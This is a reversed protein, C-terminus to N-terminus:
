LEEPNQLYDTLRHLFRAGVAGDSARHDASLTATVQPRVEVLGAVACPRETVAGFGVIAVQPVPIVGFVADAGLDGLNTVTITAQTTDRSRLRSSRTRGVVGRMSRMMEAPSLRDADPITPVLIGGGRLSVVTGLHVDSAAQFRDDIWFGNLEPVARAARAVACLLLASAVIREPVPTQENSRRLARTAQEMDVVSSLYYHPVTRKSRTMAAAILQRAAAPDHPPNEGTDGADHIAPPVQPQGAGPETAWGAAPLDRARVAGDPGTGTLRALEVGSAHALRRAYGSARGAYPKPVSTGAAGAHVTTRGTPAPGPGGDPPHGPPPPSTSTKAREIDARMVRGGPGSGPVAAIDLGAEAALKRILPTARHDHESGDNRLPAAVPATPPPLPGTEFGDAPAPEADGRAPPGTDSTPEATTDITALPTGVAVTAGEPVLIETLVGDDFSEVEIAAKTTDIEAVIDGRHVRQGPHVFWHLVTGEVMDAGLSPMRFETM